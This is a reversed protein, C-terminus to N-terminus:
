KDNESVEVKNVKLSDVDGRLIERVAYYVCMSIVNVRSGRFMPYRKKDMLKNVFALQEDDLFTSVAATNYKRLEELEYDVKKHRKPSEYWVEEGKFRLYKSKNDVNMCITICGSLAESFSDNFFRKLSHVYNLAFGTMRVSVKTKAM